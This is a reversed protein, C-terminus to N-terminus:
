LGGFAITESEVEETKTEKTLNMGKLSTSIVFFSKVDLVSIIKLFEKAIEEINANLLKNTLIEGQTEAPIEKELSFIFEWWRKKQEQIVKKDFNSYGLIIVAIAKAVNQYNDAYEMISGFISETDIEKSPIKSIYKSALVLTAISPPAVQYCEGGITITKKVELLTEAVKEEM